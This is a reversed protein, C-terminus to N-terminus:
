LVTMVYKHTKVRKKEHPKVVSAREYPEISEGRRMGIVWWENVDLPIEFYILMDSNLLIM